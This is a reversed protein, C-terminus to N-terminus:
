WVGCMIVLIIGRAVVKVVEITMETSHCTVIGKKFDDGALTWEKEGSRCRWTIAVYSAVPTSVGICRPSVHICGDSFCETEGDGSHWVKTNLSAAEVSVGIELEARAPLFKAGEEREVSVVHRSWSVDNVVICECPGTRNDTGLIGDIYSICQQCIHVSQEPLCVLFAGSNECSQLPLEGVVRTESSHVILEHHSRANKDRRDEYWM